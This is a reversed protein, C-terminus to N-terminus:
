ELLEGDRLFVGVGYAPQYRRPLLVEAPPDDDDIAEGAAHHFVLRRPYLDVRPFLARLFAVQMDAPKERARAVARVPDALLAQFGPRNRLLSADSLKDESLKEVAVTLETLRQRIDAEESDELFWALPKQTAEAIKELVTVPPPNTGREWNGVTRVTQGSVAEALQVQTMEAARRAARIRKGLM